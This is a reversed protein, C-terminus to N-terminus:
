LLPYIKLFVCEIFGISDRKIQEKDIIGIALRDVILPQVKMETQIERAKVALWSSKSHKTKKLTFTPKREDLRCISQKLIVYGGEGYSVTENQSINRCYHKQIM